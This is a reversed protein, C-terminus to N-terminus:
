AEPALNWTDPALDSALRSRDFYQYVYVSFHVDEASAVSTRGTWVQPVFASMQLFTKDTVAGNVKVSGSVLGSSFLRMTLISLLTSKGSSVCHLDFDHDLNCVSQDYRNKRSWMKNCALTVSRARPQCQWSQGYTKFEKRTPFFSRSIGEPCTQCWTLMQCWQMLRLWWWSRCFQSLSSM